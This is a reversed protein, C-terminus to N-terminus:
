KEYRFNCEPLVAGPKRAKFQRVGYARSLSGEIVFQRSRQFGDCISDFSPWRLCSEEFLRKRTQLACDTSVISRFWLCHDCISELREKGQVASDFAQRTRQLFFDSVSHLRSVGLTQALDPRAQVAHRVLSRFETAVKVKDDFGPCSV